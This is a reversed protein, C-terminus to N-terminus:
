GKYTGRALYNTDKLTKIKRTPKPVEKVPKPTDEILQPIKQIPESIQGVNTTAEM